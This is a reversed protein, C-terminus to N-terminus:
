VSYHFNEPYKPPFISPMLDFNINKLSANEFNTQSFYSDSFIVNNLNAHAFNTHDFVGKNLNANKININSFDM